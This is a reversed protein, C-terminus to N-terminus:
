FPIEEDEEIEIELQKPELEKVKKIAKTVKIPKEEEEVIVTTKTSEQTTGKGGWEKVYLQAVLEERGGDRTTVTVIHQHNGDEDVPFDDMSNFQNVWKGSQTQYSAKWDLLNNHIIPEKQLATVLMRAIQKDSAEDPVKYGLKGILAAATSIEKGRAYRTSVRAFVVANDNEGANVVRGEINITYSEFQGQKNVNETVTDIGPMLKLSYRGQEPPAVRKFADEERNIKRKTGEPTDDNFIDVVRRKNDSVLVPDDVYGKPKSVLAM